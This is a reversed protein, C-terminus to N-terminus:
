FALLGSPSLLPVAPTVAVEVRQRHRDGGFSKSESPPKRQYRRHRPQRTSHPSLRLLHPRSLTGSPMASSYVSLYSRDITCRHYEGNAAMPPQSPRCPTSLGPLYTAADTADQDPRFDTLKLSTAPSVPRPSPTVTCPLTPRHHRPTPPEIGHAHKHQAPSSLTCVCPFTICASRARAARRRRDPSPLAIRVALISPLQKLSDTRPTSPARAALHCPM